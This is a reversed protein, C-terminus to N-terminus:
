INDCARCFAQVLQDKESYTLGFLRSLYGQFYPLQDYGLNERYGKTDREETAKAIIAEIQLQARRYETQM